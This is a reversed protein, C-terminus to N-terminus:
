INDIVRKMQVKWSLTQEISSRIDQSSLSVSKMFTILAHIDLPSEDPRVKMVYPMNEFDDDIESYVFAIGRATYERNKLSRLHTIGSRHRALSGIGLQCHNFVDDLAEGFLPGHFIIHKDLGNEKILQHYRDIVEPVGQGSTATQLVIGIRKHCSRFWAM